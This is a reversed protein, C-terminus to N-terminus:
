MEPSALPDLLEDSLTPRPGSSCFESVLLSPASLATCRIRCGYFELNSEMDRDRAVPASNLWRCYGALYKLKKM